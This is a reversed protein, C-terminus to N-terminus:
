LEEAKAKIIRFTSERDLAQRQIQDYLRSIRDVEGKEYDCILRSVAETYAVEPYPSPMRVLMLGSATDDIGRIWTNLPLLRLDINEKEALKLLLTLQERMVDAGGVPQCLALEHIVSTLRPAGPRSLVRQRTIRLDVIRRLEREEVADPDSSILATAYGPSQLLGPVTSLTITRIAKAREEVWIFDALEKTIHRKYADWWGHVAVDDCLELIETREDVNAVQYIDLLELLLQSSIPQAGSEWRSLSTPDRRISAAASTVKVGARLRLDKIRSGLWAARLSRHTKGSM